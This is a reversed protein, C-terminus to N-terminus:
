LATVMLGKEFTITKTTWGITGDGNDRIDTVITTSGSQGVTVTGENGLETWDGVGLYPTYLAIIGKGALRTGYVNTPAYYTNFSVYGTMAKGTKGGQLSANTIKAFNNGNDSTIEGIFTGTAAKLEGKFTGSAAQLEGSFTGSAAELKGAFTGTAAKLEGSFSGTAASLAGKFTGSAAELEGAFKGKIAAIGNNDWKGILNGSSDLIELIGNANDMGGLTLTGGKIWDCVIGIAYLINVVANGNKDFGATYSEGGDTSIFFGDISQKYIISSEELSPKDHLYTIRSGNPQEEYTTHYGMANMAIQNMQQVAKDYTTLQKKTNRRAEVVAAASASSYMSGNRAPDEAECAIQTYAGVSYSISNIISYYVNGKRDSLMVVDFPEYLPNGLIEATYPRFTMGVMRGGLYNAVANEKGNVFPNGSIEIVYGEEGFLVSVDEDGVVRVGTIQIDDTHVDISKIRFIHEPVEETFLAGRIITDASYNKFDGGNVITDHPYTKFNGGNYNNYMDLLATNYWVLQMYGDNDIRVNYGAIQAAYSAVQRYTLGEPKEQVMFSMNDFQRFGIPIGCDLCCDSIITQLTAPYSTQCNSYDRDLLFMSDVASIEIVDGTTSPVTAYYIGKRIKEIKGSDLLMAVYLNIISNYFDYGSFREDYNAIRMTLTKGVAFGVGFKGDTTKDEITCGGVMFDKYTLSLSTGDSLTIDAYNVLNAGNKLKEKFEKSANIM